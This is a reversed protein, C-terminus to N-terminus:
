KKLFEIEFYTTNATKKEKRKQSSHFYALAWNKGTNCQSRGCKVNLDDITQIQKCTIVPSLIALYARFVPGSIRAKVQKRKISCISCM